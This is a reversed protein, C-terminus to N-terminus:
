WGLGCPGPSRLPNCDGCQSVSTGGDLTSIRPLGGMGARVSSLQHCSCGSIKQSLLPTHTQGHGEGFRYDPGRSQVELSFGQASFSLPQWVPTPLPLCVLGPAGPALSSCGQSASLPLVMFSVLIWQGM